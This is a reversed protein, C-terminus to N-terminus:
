KLYKQYYPVSTGKLWDNHLMNPKQILVAKGADLMAQLPVLNKKGVVTQSYPVVVPSSSKSSSGMEYYGWQTSQWPVIAEDQPSGLFVASELAQFNAQMRPNRDYAQDPYYICHGAEAGKKYHCGSPECGLSFPNWNMSCRREPSENNIVALFTSDGQYDAYENMNKWYGAVSLMGQVTKSYMGSKTIADFFWQPLSSQYTGYGDVGQQPGALSVFTKVPHNDWMSILGRCVLGGQSHCILNIGNSTISSYSQIFKKVGKVQENMATLSDKNGEYLPITIYTTGPFLDKIKVGLDDGAASNSNIGHMFFTPLLRRTSTTKLRRVSADIDKTMDM